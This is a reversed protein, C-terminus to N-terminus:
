KEKNYAKFGAKANYLDVLFNIKNKWEQLAVKKRGDPKEEYLKELEDRIDAANIYQKKYLNIEDEGVELIISSKKKM